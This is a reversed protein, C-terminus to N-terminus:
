AKAQELEPILHERMHLRHFYGLRVKFPEDFLGTLRGVHRDHITAHRQIHGLDFAREGDPDSGHNAQTLWAM